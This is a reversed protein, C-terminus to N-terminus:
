VFRCLIENSILFGRETFAVSGEQERLLGLELWDRYDDELNRDGRESVYSRVADASVGQAKRMGLVIAERVSEEPSLRRDLLTPRRGDRLSGVYGPISSVNARRSGGWFEHASAGLGLTPVRDWYKRNHRAERGPLAWNSIEYHTFGRRALLRGADLWLQAQADDGLYRGPRERRDEAVDRSDELLYVSVHEVRHELLRDLSDLFTEPSQEPLGLILDACLSASTVGLAELARSATAADHSRGVANLEPDSLSQVGLSIRTVGAHLWASVVASAVDEPNAELTVEADGAVAFRRRLTDLLRAIDDGPIRSPTGGGLYISDFAAGRGCEELIEAEVDLARLYESRSSEDTAVFFTCYSCRVGCYPLHVYLGAATTM